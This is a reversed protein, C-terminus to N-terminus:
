LLHIKLNNFYSDRSFFFRCSALSGCSPSWDNISQDAVHHGDTIHCQNCHTGHSFREVFDFRIPFRRSPANVTRSELHNPADNQHGNQKTIESRFSAFHIKLKSRKLSVTKTEPFKLEAVVLCGARRYWAEESAWSASRTIVVYM